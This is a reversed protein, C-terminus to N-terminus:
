TQLAEACHARPAQLGAGSFHSPPPPTLLQSLTLLSPLETVALIVSHPHPSRSSDAPLTESVSSLYEGEGLVWCGNVSDQTQDELHEEPLHSDEDGDLSNGLVRGVRVSHVPARRPWPRCSGAAIRHSRPLRPGRRGLNPM